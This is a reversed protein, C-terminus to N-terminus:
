GRGEIPGGVIRSVYFTVNRPNAFVAPLVRMGGSPRCNSEGLEAISVLGIFKEAEHVRNVAGTRAGVHLTVFHLRVDYRSVDIGLRGMNSSPSPRPIGTRRTPKIARPHLPYEAKTHPAHDEANIRTDRTIPGAVGDVKAVERRDVLDLHFIGRAHRATYRKSFQVAFEQRAGCTNWEGVVSRDVVDADHQALDKEILWGALPPHSDIFKSLPSRTLQCSCSSGAMRSPGHNRRSCDPRMGFLNFKRKPPIPPAAWRRTRKWCRDM